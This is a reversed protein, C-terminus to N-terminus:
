PWQQWPVPRPKKTFTPLQSVITLLRDLDNQSKGHVAIAVKWYEDLLILAHQTVSNQKATRDWQVRYIGLKGGVRTSEPEPEVPATAGGLYFTLDGSLPPNAHGYYVCFDPGWLKKWTLANVPVPGLFEALEKDPMPKAEPPGELFPERSYAPLPVALLLAAVLTRMLGLSVM